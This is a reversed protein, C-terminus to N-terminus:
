FQTDYIHMNNSYVAVTKYIDDISEETFGNVRFVIYRMGKSYDMFKQIMPKILKWHASPSKYTNEDEVDFATADIVGVEAQFDDFMFKKIEENRRESNFDAELISVNINNMM